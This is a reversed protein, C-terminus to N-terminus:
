SEKLQYMWDVTVMSSAYFGLTNSIQYDGEAFLNMMASNFGQETDYTNKLGYTAGQTVYGFLYLPKGLVSFEEAVASSLTLSVSLMSVLLLIILVKRKM